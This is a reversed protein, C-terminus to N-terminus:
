PNWGRNYNHWYDSELQARMSEECYDDFDAEAVVRSAPWNDRSEIGYLDTMDGETRVDVDASPAFESALLGRFGDLIEVMQVREQESYRANKAKRAMIRLSWRLSILGLLRFMLINGDGYAERDRVRIYAIQLLENWVSASATTGPTGDDPYKTYTRILDEVIEFWGDANTGTAEEVFDKFDKM